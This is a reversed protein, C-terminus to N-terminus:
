IGGKTYIHWVYSGDQVTSIYQEAYKPIEHGTGVIVVLLEKNVKDTDVEAWLVLENHQMQVCLVKTIPAKISQTEQLKLNYKYIRKM